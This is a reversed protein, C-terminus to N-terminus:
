TKFKSFERKKTQEYVIFIPTEALKLTKQQQFLLFLCVFLSLQFKQIQIKQGLFATEHRM